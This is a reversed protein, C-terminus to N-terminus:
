IQFNSTQEMSFYKQLSTIKFCNM